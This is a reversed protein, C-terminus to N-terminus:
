DGSEVYRNLRARQAGTIDLFCVAIHYNKEEEIEEVRVV